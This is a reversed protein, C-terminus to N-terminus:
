GITAVTYTTTAWAWTHSTPSTASNPPITGTLENQYLHLDTLNTLQGLQPPITGILQNDGLNLHTLNTLQGLQPPITGTLDNNHLNLKPISAWVVVM